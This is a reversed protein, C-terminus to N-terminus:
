LCSHCGGARSAEVLSPASEGYALPSLSWAMAQLSGLNLMRRPAVETTAELCRLRFERDVPKLWLLSLESKGMQDLYVCGGGRYLDIKDGRDARFSANSGSWVFTM